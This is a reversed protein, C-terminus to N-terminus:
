NQTQQIERFDYFEERLDVMETNTKCTSEYIDSYNRHLSRYDVHLQQGEQMYMDIYPHIVLEQHVLVVIDHVPANPIPKNSDLKLNAGPM